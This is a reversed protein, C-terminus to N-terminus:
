SRWSRAPGEIRPGMRDLSRGPWRPHQFRLGPQGARWQRGACVDRLKRGRQRWTHRWHRDQVRLQVRGAAWRDQEPRHQADRRQIPLKVGDKMVRWLIAERPNVATLAVTCSSCSFSSSRAATTALTRDTACGSSAATAASEQARIVPLRRLKQRSNRNRNPSGTATTPRAGTASTAAARGGARACASYEGAVAVTEANETSVLDSFIWGEQGNVCCFQYWDGEPNKGLIDFAQGQSVAGAIGYNTGPGNRVNANDINIILKPAPTPTPPDPEPTPPEPTPTEEAPVEAVPQETAATPAEAVPQEQEVEPESTPQGPPTPTFTPM